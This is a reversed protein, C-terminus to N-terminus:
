QGGTFGFFITSLDINAFHLYWENWLKYGIVLGWVLFFYKKYALYAKAEDSKNLVLILTYAMVLPELFNQFYVFMLEDRTIFFLIQGIFRYIFLAVIVKKIKWRLGLILMFVYSILDAFKDITQYTADSLGLGLLIDGDVVDLLYNAWSGIFPFVLLSSPIIFKLSIVLAILVITMFNDYM